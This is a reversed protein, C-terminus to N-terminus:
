LGVGAAHRCAKCKVFNMGTDADKCTETCDIPSNCCYVRLDAVGMKDEGEKVVNAQAGCVAERPGCQLEKSWGGQSAPVDEKSPKAGPFSLKSLDSLDPKRCSFEVNVMGADDFGRAPPSGQARFSYVAQGEPCDRWPTWIGDLGEATSVESGDSCHFKLANIGTRDKAAGKQVKIKAGTVYTSSPCSAGSGWYGTGQLNAAKLMTSADERPITGLDYGTRALRKFEEKTMFWNESQHYKEWLRTAEEQSKGQRLNMEVGFEEISVVGDLNQDVREWEEALAKETLRVSDRVARQELYTSIEKPVVDLPAVAETEGGAMKDVPAALPYNDAPDDILEAKLSGVVPPGVGPRLRDPKAILRRKEMPILPSSGGPSDLGGGAASDARGRPAQQPFTRQRIRTAPMLDPAMPPKLDNQFDSRTQIPDTPMAGTLSVHENKGDLRDMPATPDLDRIVFLPKQNNVWDFKGIPADQFTRGFPRPPGFGMPLDSLLAAEEPKHGNRLNQRVEIPAALAAGFLAALLGLAM